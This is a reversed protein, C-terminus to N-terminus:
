KEPKTRSRAAARSSMKPMPLVDGRDITQEAPPADDHGKSQAYLRLMEALYQDEVDHPVQRLMLQQVSEPQEVFWEIMRTVAAKQTMGRTNCIDDLSKKLDREISVKLPQLEAMMM